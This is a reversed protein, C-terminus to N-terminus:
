ARGVTPHGPGGRDSEVAVTDRRSPGYAEDGTGGREVPSGERGSGTDTPWPRIRQEARSEWSIAFFTFKVQKPLLIRITHSM